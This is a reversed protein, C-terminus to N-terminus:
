LPARPGPGPYFGNELVEGDRKYLGTPYGEEHFRESALVYVDRGAVGPRVAELSLELVEHVLRQYTALEESPEGIVFTRTMDAYCSSARDRPWLDLVIPEDPKIEGPGMEHGVATQPGHSAIFEDGLPNLTPSAQQAATKVRGSPLPGGERA